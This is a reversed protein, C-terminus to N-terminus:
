VVGFAELDQGSAPHDLPGKCPETAVATKGLIELLGSGRSGCPEEDSRDLEESAADCSCSILLLLKSDSELACAGFM